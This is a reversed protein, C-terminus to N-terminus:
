FAFKDFQLLFFEDFIIRGANAQVAIIWGSAPWDKVQGQRIMTYNHPNGEEWFVAAFEQEGNLALLFYYNRGVEFSLNGIFKADGLYNTGKWIDTKAEQKLNVGYRYYNSTQWEGKEIQFNLNIDATTYEMLFLVAQGKELTGRSFGTTFGDAGRVELRGNNWALGSESTNWAPDRSAFSDFEVTEARLLFNSIGDPLEIIAPTPYPIKIVQDARLNASTADLNNLAIISEVSVDFASAIKGCTDGVMITYDFTPLSPTNPLPKPTIIKTAKPTVTTSLTKEQLPKLAVITPTVQKSSGLNININPFLLAWALLITAIACFIIGIIWMCAPFKRRGSVPTSPIPLVYGPAPPVPQRLQTGCYGCVNATDPVTNKCNPCQM